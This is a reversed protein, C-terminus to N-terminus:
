QIISISIPALIYHVSYLTSKKFSTKHFMNEVLKIFEDTHWVFSM